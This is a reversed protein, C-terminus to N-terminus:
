NKRFTMKRHFRIMEVMEKINDHQPKFFALSSDNRMINLLRDCTANISHNKLVYEYDEKAHRSYDSLLLDLKKEFSAQGQNPCDPAGLSFGYEENLFIYDKLEGAPYIKSLVGKVIVPKGRKAIELISTGMAIGIDVKDDIFSNLENGFLKGLFAIEYEFRNSYQKVTELANGDGVIFLKCNVGRNSVVNIENMITLLANKKDEDIRSLWMFSLSDRDQRMFDKKNISEGVIPVPLYSIHELNLKFVKQLSSYNNYDMLAITRDCIMKILLSKMKKKLFPDILNIRNKILVLGTLNSPELSWLLFRNTENYTFLRDIDCIYNLGIVILCDSPVSIKGGKKYDKINITPSLQQTHIFGDNFDVYFVEISHVESLYNACRIYLLQEGGIKHSPCYFLIRKM